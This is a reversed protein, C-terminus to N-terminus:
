FNQWTHKIIYLWWQGRIYIWQGKVLDCHYCLFCICSQRCLDMSDISHNKWYDRISTLTRCLSSQTNFFQHKQVTTSSFVRSLGKSLLSVLSTLGLPFWGPMSMPLVSASASAGISQGSSIFLQSVPFSRSAPFSQSPAVPSSINPHCWRSLPCTQAFEPLHLVPLGPSQLSNFVVSYCCLKWEPETSMIWIIRLLNSLCKVGLWPKIVHIVTKDLEIFSHAM